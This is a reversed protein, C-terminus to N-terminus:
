IVLLHFCSNKWGPSQFHTKSMNESKAQIVSRYILGLNRHFYMIHDTAIIMVTIFSVTKNVAINTFLNRADKIFLSVARSYM